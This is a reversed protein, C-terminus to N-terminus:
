IHLKTPLQQIGMLDFLQSDNVKVDYLINFNLAFKKATKTSDLAIHTVDLGNIINRNLTNTTQQRLTFSNEESPNFIEIYLPKEDNIRIDIVENNENPLSIQPLPSGVVLKNERNQIRKLEKVQTTFLKVERLYNFEPLLSDTKIFLERNTWANFLEQNGTRQMLAYMMILPHDSIQLSKQAYIGKVSDLANTLEAIKASNPIWASDKTLAAIKDIEQKLTASNKDIALFYSSLDSGSIKINAPFVIDQADIFVSNNGNLIIIIGQGSLKQFKYFGPVITDPNWIFEGQHNILITDTVYQPESVSTIIMRNGEGGWLVGSLVPKEKKDSCSIFLFTILVSIIARYM